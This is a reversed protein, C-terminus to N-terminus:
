AAAEQAQLQALALAVLDRVVAGRPAGNLRGRLEDVAALTDGDLRVTIATLPARDPRRLAALSPPLQEPIPVPV